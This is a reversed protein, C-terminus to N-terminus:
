VWSETPESKTPESKPPESKPVTDAAAATAVDAAAAVRPESFMKDVAESNDCLISKWVAPTLVVDYKKAAEPDDSQRSLVMCTGTFVISKTPGLQVKHCRKERAAAEMELRCKKWRLWDHVTIYTGPRGPRLDNSFKSTYHQRIEILGERTPAKRLLIKEPLWIEM